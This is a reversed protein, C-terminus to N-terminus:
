RPIPSIGMGSPPAPSVPAEGRRPAAVPAGAGYKRKLSSRTMLIVAVMAGALILMAPLLSITPFELSFIVFAVAIGGTILLASLGPLSSYSPPKPQTQLAFLARVRPSVHELEPNYAVGAGAEGGEHFPLEAGTATQPRLLPAFVGVLAFGGLVILAPTMASQLPLTNSSLTPFPLPVTLLNAIANIQLQNVQSYAQILTQSNMVYGSSTIWDLAAILMVGDLFALQLAAIRKGPSSETQWVWSEILFPSALIIGAAVDLGGGGALSVAFAGLVAIVIMAWLGSLTLWRGKWPALQLLNLAVIAFFVMESVTDWGTYTTLLLYGLYAFLPLILILSLVRFNM